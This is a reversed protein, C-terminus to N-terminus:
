KKEVNLNGPFGLWQKTKDTIEMTTIPEIQVRVKAICASIQILDNIFDRHKITRLYVNEDTVWSSKKCNM